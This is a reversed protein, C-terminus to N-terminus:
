PRLPTCPHCCKFGPWVGRNLVPVPGWETRAWAPKAAEPRTQPKRQLATVGASPVCGHALSAFAGAGPSAEEGMQAETEGWLLLCSM